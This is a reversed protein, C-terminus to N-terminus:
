VFSHAAILRNPREPVFDATNSVSIFVYYKSCKLIIECRM